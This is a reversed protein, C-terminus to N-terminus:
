KAALFKGYQCRQKLLFPALIPSLDYYRALVMSVHGAVKDPAPDPIVFVYM